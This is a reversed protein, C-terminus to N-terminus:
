KNRGAEEWLVYLLLKTRQAAGVPKCGCQRTTKIEDDPSHTKVDEVHQDRVSWPHDPNMLM